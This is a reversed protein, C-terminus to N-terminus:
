PATSLGLNSLGIQKTFKELDNGEALSIRTTADLENDYYQEIFHRKWSYLIVTYHQYDATMVYQAQNRLVKLYLDLETLQQMNVGKASIGKRIYMVIDTGPIAPGHSFIRVVLVFGIFKWRCIPILLM